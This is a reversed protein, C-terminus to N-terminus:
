RTGDVVGMVERDLESFNVESFMSLMAKAKLKTLTELM